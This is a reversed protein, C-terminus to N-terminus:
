LWKKIIRSFIICCVYTNYFITSRKETQNNQFATLKEYVNLKSKNQKLNNGEEDKDTNTIKCIRLMTSLIAEIVKKIGKVVYYNEQRKLIGLSIPM